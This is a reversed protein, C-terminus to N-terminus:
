DEEGIDLALDGLVEESTFGEKYEEVFKKYSGNYNGIEKNSFYELVFDPKLWSAKKLGLYYPYSTFEQFNIKGKITKKPNLNIYRSLHLLYSDDLVLAGKYRDQFLHGIREYKKNFYMSYSTCLRIMFKAIGNKEIQKILLHFHNPMLAFSLLEIEGYMNTRMLRNLRLNFGVFNKLEEKPSLYQKLLSLFVICDNKDQFITRKDVGRNYLHYYGNEVYSKIRNRSPMNKAYM